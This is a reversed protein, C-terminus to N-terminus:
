KEPSVDIVGGILSGTRESLKDILNKTEADRVNIILTNNVTSVQSADSYIKEMKNLEQIANVPNHLKVSTHVTSIDTDDNYETRSHIESIAGTFPTEPGINCWSGDKGMEMFDTLRARAIESLRQKRELVTMVSDDEVRKRLQSLRDVIKANNLLRSATVAVSNDSNNLYGATIASQTANGTKFYEIVFREQKQTLKNM